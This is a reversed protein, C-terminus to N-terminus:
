FRVTYRVSALPSGERWMLRLAAGNLPRFEFGATIRRTDHEAFARFQWTLPLVVGTFLGSRRSGGGGGLTLEMPVSANYRGDLGMRYTFALYAFRGEATRNMIDQVGVTVGPSTDIIPGLYTYSLNMTGLRANPAIRDLMFEAEIEKTLGYGLYLRNDERQRTLGTMFEIRAQRMLLKSGTPAFVIRDATALTAWGLGLAIVIWRM